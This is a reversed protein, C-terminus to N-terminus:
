VRTRRLLWRRTRYGLGAALALLLGVLALPAGHAGNRALGVLRAELAAVGNSPRQAAAGVSQDFKQGNAGLYTAQYSDDKVPTATGGSTAASDDPMPQVAERNDTKDGMFFIRAVSPTLGKPNRRNVFLYYTGPPAVVGTPPATVTLTHPGTRTFALDLTRTNSDVVHQAAPTRMAVVTGISSPDDVNITFTSGWAVGNPAHTIRPRPGYFLYPPSWVQFSSDKNNNATVGPLVTHHAGYSTPIPSHGGSLVRGDPLLIASNHYTRDRSEPAMDTWKNTAPDYLEPVRVARESGPDIVEDKDAGNLALIQGDPLAVGSVFWRPHHLNGAMTNTVHSHSDVTTLQAFPTALEGGPPPGLVGGYSLLTVKDYPPKMPLSVMFDGSRAGLPNVGTIEWKKTQLNFEQQLAFTAEDIAQGFPGWNQGSGGYFVKNDPTLFIRPFLPLSNESLPGTYNETWTNAAPDYTETRRVQSMQTSKVLKTVGSMALVDGNSLTVVGPYWRGYKMPAAQRWDNIYPDYMRANRLGELEIAGLDYPYGHDRDLGSGPENYWSTGGIVMTEGDGLTAINACFLDGSNTVGTDPSCTPNHEIGTSSGTIAGGVLSGVFGDGPRGPVGAVGLPDSTRCNDNPRINPNHAGGTPHGPVSWTPTGSRLDLVRSRSDRSEPSLEPASAYQVNESSEIGNWYLVKGQPTIVQAYGVPKCLIRGDTGKVCRPTNIGGEEFPATWTGVQDPSGGSPAAKAASSGALGAGVIVVAGVATGLLRWRAGPRREIMSM